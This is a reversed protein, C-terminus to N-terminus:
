RRTRATAVFADSYAFAKGRLIRNFKLKNEKKKKEKLDSTNCRLDGWTNFSGRPPAHTCERRAAKTRAHASTNSAGGGGM